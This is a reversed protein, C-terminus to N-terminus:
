YHEGGGLLCLTKREKKKKILKGRERTNAEPGRGTVGSLARDRPAGEPKKEQSRPYAKKVSPHNRKELVEEGMEWPVGQNGEPTKANDRDERNRGFFIPLPAKKGGVTRM